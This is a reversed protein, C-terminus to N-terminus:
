EVLRSPAGVDSGSTLRPTAAGGGRILAPARRRQPSRLAAGRGPRAMWGPLQPRNTPLPPPPAGEDYVVHQIKVHQGEYINRNEVIVKLGTSSDGRTRELERQRGALATFDYLRRSGIRHPGAARRVEWPAARRAALWLREM